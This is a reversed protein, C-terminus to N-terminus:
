AAFADGLATTTQAAFFTTIIPLVATIVARRRVAPHDHGAHDALHAERYGSCRAPIRKLVSSRNPSAATARRGAAVGAQHWTNTRGAAAGTSIEPAPAAGGAGIGSRSRRRSVTCTPSCSRTSTSSPTIGRDPGARIGTPDFVVARCAAAATSTRAPVGSICIVTIGIAAVVSTPGLDAMDPGEVPGACSVM